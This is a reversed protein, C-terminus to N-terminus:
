RLITISGTKSGSDGDCRIMYYYVGDPLKKGNATGDWDNEYGGSEFVKMGKEDFITVSCQKALAAPEVKWIPNTGDGNPSFFNAPKLLNTPNDVNVTVEVSDKGVCGNSGTVKLTYMTTLQPTAVPSKAIPNDLTEAPTWTYNDYTEQVSLVSTEGLNIPNPTASITLVPAPLTTVVQSAQIKCGISNKLQVTVTGSQTVDATATTAGTSWLYESFAASVALTLKTGSCFQFVNGPATISATPPLSVKIPKTKETACANGRYSAKLKVTLSAAVATYVHTPSKDTSTGGDGFEWAFQPEANEQMVSQNTFSVPSDKCTEAPSDFNVGPTTALLIDIPEAPVDPCGPYLTSKAKFSYSGTASVVLSTTTAGGIDGNANAWQYTFNGDAPVATLTKTDGTCIVDSGTFGVSFAPLSITEVLTSGKAAICGGALVEVEYRGAYEPKYSTRTITSGTATFGAPGTWNFTDGGAATAGINITGDVCVPSNNTFAPAGAVGTAMTVSVQNSTKTCGDSTIDVTYIGTLSPTFTTTTIGLDNGDKKWAYTAGDSISSELTVPFSTCVTMPGPPTVKPVICAQNRFFSVKSAVIGRSNDDVSTYTIDPKSDGDIDGIVVHRNAFNTSRILKPLFSVTGPTSTNNLITLSKPDISGSGTLSAIVADLKGDGDLDGFDVGWPVLDTSVSAPAGFQLNSSTSQNLFVSIQSAVLQTAIIDPKTDGDVDGVRVNVPTGALTLTKIKTFRFNGSTSQNSYIFVNSNAALFQNIVIEPLNDDDLDQVALGDTSTAGPPGAIPVMAGFSISGISSTNPLIIFDNNGSKQDTVIIEPKGDLDLDTIEVRKPSKGALSINQTTFSLTGPTSTNRLIFIRTGPDAETVVLDKKGDGDLDGCRIHLSRISPFFSTKAAFTFSGGPTSTNRFLAVSNAPAGTGGSNATGVDNLGDNDLDCLCVDFLGSEAALDTQAVFNALAIPSQGGYSLMFEGQSWGTKGTSTNTVTISEYTAGPPVLVEITQDTPSQPTTLVTGKAAGFWVSLNAAVGGFNSGSITVRQENGNVYKDVHTIVPTQCFANTALAVLCFFLPKYTM